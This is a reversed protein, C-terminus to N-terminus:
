NLRDVVDLPIYGASKAIWHGKGIGFALDALVADIDVVKGGAGAVEGEAVIGQEVPSCPLSRESTGPHTM